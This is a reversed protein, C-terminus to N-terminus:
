RDEAGRTPLPELRPGAGVIPVPAFDIFDCAVCRYVVGNREGNFAVRHGEGHLHGYVCLGVGAEELVETFGSPEHAGNMPPYHVMAVRVEAGGRRELDALSVRLREVERRYIKLDQEDYRRGAPHQDDWVAGAPPKRDDGRANPEDPTPKWGAPPCDWGRTGAIGVGEIVRADNRLFDVSPPLIARMKKPGPWWYDHNGRIMLKRGPLDELWQLDPKAEELTMAWSIDGVVLVLDDEGVRERWARAIKGAHDVWQPGFIDMPKDVAHALHTDGIAFVRM